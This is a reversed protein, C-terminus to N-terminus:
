PEFIPPWICFQQIIKEFSADFGILVYILWIDGEVICSASDVMLNHKTSLMIASIEKANPLLSLSLRLRLLICTAAYAANIPNDLEFDPFLTIVVEEPVLEL